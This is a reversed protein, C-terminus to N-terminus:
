DGKVRTTKLSIPNKIPNKDALSSLNGRFGRMYVKSRSFLQEGLQQVAKVAERAREKRDERDEFSHALRGNTNAILMLAAEPTFIRKPDQYWNLLGPDFLENRHELKTLRGFNTIAIGGYLRAGERAIIRAPYFHERDMMLDKMMPTLEGSGFLRDMESAILYVAHLERKDKLVKYQAPRVHKIPSLGDLYKGQMRFSVTGLSRFSLGTEKLQDMASELVFKKKLCDSNYEKMNGVPRMEAFPTKNIKRLLGLPYQERQPEKPFLIPIKDIFERYSEDKELHPREESSSEYLDMFRNVKTRAEPSLSALYAEREKIKKQYAQDRQYVSSAQAVFAGVADDLFTYVRDESKDLEKVIKVKHTDQHGFEDEADRDVAGLVLTEDVPMLPHDARIMSLLPERLKRQEALTDLEIGVLTSQLLRENEFAISLYRAAEDRNIDPNFGKRILQSRDENLLAQFVEVVSDFSVGRDEMAKLTYAKLEALDVM